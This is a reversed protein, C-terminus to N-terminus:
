MPFGTRWGSQGALVGPHHDHTWNLNEESTHPTSLEYASTESEIDEGGRM